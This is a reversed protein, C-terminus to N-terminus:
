NKVYVTIAFLISDLSKVGGNISFSNSINGCIWLNIPIFSFQPRFGGSDVNTLTMVPQSIGMNAVVNNSEPTATLDSTSTPTAEQTSDVTPEDEISETEPPMSTSTIADKISASAYM